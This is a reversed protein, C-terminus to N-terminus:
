LAKWFEVTVAQLGAKAYFNQAAKNEADTHTILHDCGRLKFDKILTNLLKKALGKQRSSPQIYLADLYGLKSLAYNKRTTVSGVIFGVVENKEEAVIFINKQLDSVRVLSRPKTRTHFIKNKRLWLTGRDANLTNFMKQLVVLDKPEAKRIIVTM